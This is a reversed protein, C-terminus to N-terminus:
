SKVGIQQIQCQVGPTGTPPKNPGGLSQNPPKLSIIFTVPITKSSKM